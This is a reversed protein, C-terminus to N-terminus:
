WEAFPLCLVYLYACIFGVWWGVLLLVILWVLFRLIDM